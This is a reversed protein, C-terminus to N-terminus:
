VDMRSSYHVVSYFIVSLHLIRLEINIYFENSINITWVKYFVDTCVCNLSIILFIEGDFIDSINRIIIDM